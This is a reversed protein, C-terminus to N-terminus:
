PTVIVPSFVPASIAFDSAGSSQGAGFLLAATFSASFEGIALDWATIGITTEVGATSLGVAGLGANEDTAQMFNNSNFNFQSSSIPDYVIAAFASLGTGQASASLGRVAMGADESVVQLGGLGLDDLATPENAVAPAALVLVM